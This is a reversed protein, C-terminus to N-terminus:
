KGWGLSTAAALIALHLSPARGTPGGPYFLVSWEVEGAWAPRSLAASPPPHLVFRVVHGGRELWEAASVLDPSAAGSVSREEVELRSVSQAYSATGDLVWRGGPLQRWDNGGIRKREAACRAEAAERTSYVGLVSDHLWVLFVRDVSPSAPSPGRPIGLLDLNDGPPRPLTDALGKRVAAEFAQGDSVPLGASDRHCGRAAMVQVWAEMAARVAQEFATM